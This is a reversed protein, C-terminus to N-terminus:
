DSLINSNGQAAFVCPFFEFFPTPEQKISGCSSSLGHQESGKVFLGIGNNKVQGRFDDFFFVTFFSFQCSQNPRGDDTGFM